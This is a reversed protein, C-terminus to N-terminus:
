KRRFLCNLLCDHPQHNSVSDHGNHRRHLIIISQDGKNYDNRVFYMFIFVVMCLFVYMSLVYM